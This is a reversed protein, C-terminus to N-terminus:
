ATSRIPADMPDSNVTERSLSPPILTLKSNATTVSRGATRRVEMLDKVFSFFIVKSNRITPSM